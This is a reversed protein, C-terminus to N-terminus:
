DGGSIRVHFIATHPVYTKTGQDNYHTQKDISFMVCM